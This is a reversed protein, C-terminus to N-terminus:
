VEAFSHVSFNSTRRQSLRSSAVGAGLPFDEEHESSEPSWATVNSDRNSSPTSGATTLHTTPQSSAANSAVAAAASDLFTMDVDSNIPRLGSGKKPSRKLTAFHFTEAAGSPRRSRRSLTGGLSDGDSDGDGGSSKMRHEHRRRQAATMPKISVARSMGASGSRSSSVSSVSSVRAPEAVYSARRLSGGSSGGRSLISTGLSPLGRGFNSHQPEDHAVVNAIAYAADADISSRRLSGGGRSRISSKM